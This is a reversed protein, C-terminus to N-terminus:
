EEVRGLDFLAEEGDNFLIYKHTKTQIAQNAKGNDQGIETFNYGKTSAEENSLLSYFSKSDTNVTDSASAAALITSYLDVTSVLANEEGIRNAELELFM